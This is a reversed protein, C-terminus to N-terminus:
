ELTSSGIRKVARNKKEKAINSDGCGKLFLPHLFFSSQCVKKM